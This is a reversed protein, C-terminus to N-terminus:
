NGFNSWFRYIEQAEKDGANTHPNLAFPNLYWVGLLRLSADFILAESNLKNDDPHMEPSDCPRSPQAM